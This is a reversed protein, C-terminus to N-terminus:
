PATRRHPATQRRFELREALMNAGIGPALTVLVAIVNIVNFPSFIEQVRGFGEMYWIMAASVLILLGALAFWITAFARLLTIVM